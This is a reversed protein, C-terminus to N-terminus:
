FVIMEDIRPYHPSLIEGCTGGTRGYVYVCCLRRRAKFWWVDYHCLRTQCFFRWCINTGNSPSDGLWPTVAARHKLGSGAYYNEAFDVVCVAQNNGLSKKIITFMAQQNVMNFYHCAYPRSSWMVERLDRPMYSRQKKKRKGNLSRMLLGNGSHTWSKWITMMMYGSLSSLSSKPHAVHIANITLVILVGLTAFLQNQSYYGIKWSILFLM